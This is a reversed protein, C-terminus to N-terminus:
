GIMGGEGEERLPHAKIHVFKVFLAYSREAPLGQLHTWGAGSQFFSPAFSFEVSRKEYPGLSGQKLLTHMLLLPDWRM